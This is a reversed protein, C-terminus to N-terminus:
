TIAGIIKKKIYIFFNPAVLGLNRPIIDIVFKVLLVFKLVALTM